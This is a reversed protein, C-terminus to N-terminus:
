KCCKSCLKGNYSLPFCNTSYHMGPLRCVYYSFRQEVKYYNQNDFSAVFEALCFNCYNTEPYLDQTLAVTCEFGGQNNTQVTKLIKGSYTSVCNVNVHTIPYQSGERHFLTAGKTVTQGSTFLPHGTPMVDQPIPMTSQLDISPTGKEVFLQGEGKIIHGEHTTHASITHMGAQLNLQRSWNESIDIHAIGSSTSTGSGVIKGDVYFSVTKGSIADQAAQSDNKVVLRASLSFADLYKSWKSDIKIDFPIIFTLPTGQIPAAPTGITGSPAKPKEASWGFSVFSVLCFISVIAFIIIIRFKMNGGKRM